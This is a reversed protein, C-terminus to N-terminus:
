QSGKVSDRIGSSALLHEETTELAERRVAQRMLAIIVDGAIFLVISSPLSNPLPSHPAKVLAPTDHPAPNAKTTM